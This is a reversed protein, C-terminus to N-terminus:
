LSPNKQGRARPLPAGGGRGGRGGGGRRASGTAGVPRNDRRRSSLYLRRAGRLGQFRKRYRAGLESSSCSSSSSSSSSSANMFFVKTSRCGDSRPRAGIITIARICICITLPFLSTLFPPPPPPPPPPPSSSSSSALSSSLYISLYISIYRILGCPSIQRLLLLVLLSFVCSYFIFYLFCPHFIFIYVLLICLLIYFLIYIYRYLM